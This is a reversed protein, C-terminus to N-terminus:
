RDARSELTRQGAITRGVILELLANQVHLLERKAAVNALRPSTMVETSVEEGRTVPPCPLFLADDRLRELTASTIQYPSFLARLHAPDGAPPWADTYLVDISHDICRPFDSTVAIRGAATANMAALRESDLVHGPPAAQTVHIPLRMAAECWSMFINTVPGVFVVNLGVISGRRKEVFRLDGLIECPHNFNTRANVVPISATAALRLLATHEKARVVLLTLWNSLYGGIDDLPETAGLEGPLTTVDAGMARAGVEFAVRNRFGQGYFWLGIREGVLSQPMRRAEWASELEGARAFLRTIEAATLDTLALFHRV